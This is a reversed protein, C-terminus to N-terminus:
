NEAVVIVRDEAALTVKVSKEPNVVVGYSRSADRRLAATKYGIAIEGRRRAAEVVTHFRIPQGPAVYNTAPKLYIESGEPDFLDALVAHLEKNESIQSLMLSVLKHSVIFDDANTVEALARNRVDLIESVISFDCRLKEAMDRLHLLTILVRCDAKEQTLGDSCLIIIHDFARPDTEELTRRDTTDGPRFEWALNRIGGCHQELLARGQEAEALVRVTSGPAVYADLGTVIGPARWNWGLILTREPKPPPVTGTRIVSEEIGFDTKGSLRITDDDESIAIIRDGPAIRSDMPPNLQVAGGARRLGIVSSDEYLHLSEGFTKGALSPEEKFYIEDGGFDLLETHVVSLGSQRCTQVTIRSILDGVLIIEAEDKGVLRAAQLNRPDHLEAVIHYPEKRRNPGNTIALITKIVTADPEDAEGALVIISKTTQVSVMDLDGLDIPSGTRCVVRTNKTDPVNARIADEMEVKDKEGMVVIRPRRQNANAEVLESIISFVQASWGLIVTHGEEIVMSRGKRLETLRGQIGSTLVGILTSVIFIGGLTIFLMSFLFPWSGADAGMTGPDLTRMLGFWLTMPLGFEKAETGPPRLGAGWVFLSACLLFAATVAGLWAILAITGRSMSNDFAYRLKQRLTPPKM